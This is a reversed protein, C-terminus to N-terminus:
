GHSDNAAYTLVALARRFDNMTAETAILPVDPDAAWRSAVWLGEVDPYWELAIGDVDDVALGAAASARATLDPDAHLQRYGSKRPTRRTHEVLRGLWFDCFEQHSLTAPRRLCYFLRLPGWGDIVLHNVGVVVASKAPQVAPGLRECLGGLASVVVEPDAAEPLHVEMVADFSTIPVPSDAPPLGNGVLEELKSLPDGAALAAGRHHVISHTVSVRSGDPLQDALRKSETALPVDLADYPAGQGRALLVEATYV